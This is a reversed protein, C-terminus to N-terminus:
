DYFNDDTMNIADGNRQESAPSMDDIDRLSSLQGFAEDPM